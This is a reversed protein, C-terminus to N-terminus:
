KKILTFYFLSCVTLYKGASLRTSSSLFTSPLFDLGLCSALAGSFTKSWVEYDSEHPFNASVCIALTKLKM